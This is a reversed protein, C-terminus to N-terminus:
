ANVLAKLIKVEASLQQVAKVLPAIFSSYSLGDTGKGDAPNLAGFNKPAISEVDEFIFGHHIATTDLNSNDIPKWNWSKPQLQNIFDLGLTSDQINDKCEAASTQITGNIAYVATWRNTLSGCNGGNDVLPVIGSAFSVDYQILNDGSICDISTTGFTTGGGSIFRILGATQGIFTNDGMVWQVNTGPNNYNLIMAAGNTTDTPGGAIGTGALILAPNTGAGPQIITTQAGTNIATAGGIFATNITANIANVDGLYSM